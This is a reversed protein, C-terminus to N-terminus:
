DEGKEKPENTGPKPKSKVASKPARFLATMTHEFEDRAKKGTTYKTKM